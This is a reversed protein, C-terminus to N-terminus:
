SQHSVFQIGLNVLSLPQCRIVTVAKQPNAIERSSGSPSALVTFILKLLKHTMLTFCLNSVETILKCGSASTLPFFYCCLKDSWNNVSGSKDCCCSSRHCGDTQLKITLWITSADALNPSLKGNYGTKASVERYYHLLLGPLDSPNDEWYPTRPSGHHHM